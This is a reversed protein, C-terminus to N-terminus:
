SLQFSLTIWIVVEVVIFVQENRRERIWRSSLGSLDDMLESWCCSL